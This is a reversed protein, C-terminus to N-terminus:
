GPFSVRIGYSLRDSGALCMYRTEDGLHDESDTDVDDLNEEDKPLTHLLQAYAECHDMAYIGPGEGTLVNTLRDRILQWGIVRSGQSKDSKTWSVGADEMLKAITETSAETVNNMSNDGPGPFVESSIFGFRRLMEERQLIGEAIAKAGLRLGRNTGVALRGQNDLECGYWEFVRILSGPTPCFISGDPFYAEEGNAIAWLGYSFPHSSGWDFARTLHWSRPVKFRPVMHKARDWLDDFMGGSSINWDGHLWAKRKNPDKINELEAIYKTDLYINEKYSGFIAVQTKTVEERQQTKPNFVSTSTRYIQGPNAVDIFRKKVWNHGAGYPNTTAHVILPLRPLLKIVAGKADKPSNIEPVFSSRNCSFMADFLNSTPYKTLENWGIFPYEQGHFNFYDSDKKAQRFLLQEGTPWVWRYDSKSALFRAGDDFKRFWKISKEILDDLSKYARDFIIGRWFPGYGLGVTKRFHMLQEDTKGPGRTGHYLICDCPCGITLAQSGQLPKWVIPPVSSLDAVVTM